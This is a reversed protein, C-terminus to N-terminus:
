TSDVAFLLFVRFNTELLCKRHEVTGPSFKHGTKNQHKMSRECPVRCIKQVALFNSRISRECPVTWYKWETWVSSKDALCRLTGLSCLVWINSKWGTSHSPLLRLAILLKNTDHGCFHGQFHCGRHRLRNKEIGSLSTLVWRSTSYIWKVDSWRKQPFPAYRTRDIISNIKNQDSYAKAKSKTSLYFQGYKRNVFLANSLLQCYFAFFNFTDFNTRGHFVDKLAYQWAILSAIPDEHSLFVANVVAILIHILAKFFLEITYAGDFNFFWICIKSWTMTWLSSYVLIRFDQTDISLYVIISHQFDTLWGYKYKEYFLLAMKIYILLALFCLKWTSQRTTILLLNCADFLMGYM